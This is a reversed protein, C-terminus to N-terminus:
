LEIGDDEPVFGIGTGALLEDREERAQSIGGSVLNQLPYVLVATLRNRAIVECLVVPGIELLCKSLLGSLRDHVRRSATQDADSLDNEQGKIHELDLAL